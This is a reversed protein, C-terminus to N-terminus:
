VGAGGQGMHDQKLRDYSTGTILTGDDPVRNRKSAEKGFSPATIEQEDDVEQGL